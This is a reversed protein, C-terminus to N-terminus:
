PGFRARYEQSNEFGNVMTRFDSPNNRLYTVWGNFGVTDPARRLYGYYQSAVFANVAELNQTIQDSQVIARLVQGRTMTGATLRSILDANTLTVKNPGDPNAPDPTTISSLNYNQGRSGSMLNNVFTTDSVGGYFGLFEGRQVFGAAFAARRALTDVASTGTVAALDKSFEPYDPLRNFSVRYFDILYIGKDKFEPSGFFASSVTIRDCGAAPNNPNTNFQDSCNRLLNSWPEGPEPERGLFDLYHQRVFFAIGADNTQLIPNPGDTSDNDTITVTAAVPSGFNGGAPNFLSVEFTETGEAYSDDIIPISFIKSTEGAAFNLTGLVNVLDCRKFAQHQKVACNVTFTDQDGILYDISAANSTNGIRNVTINVAGAGESVSYSFASLQFTTDAPALSIEWMGRGHTAVRLIRSTPQIAMGFVAVRPLDTGFPAWNTGGDSSSYVGIDTGAFIRSSDTPDVVLANIPISPIGNAAATWNPTAPSSGNAAAGLNTIKWIGKGAPAYFSFAVYAVDKNNPDIAVRGVFRNVSGSPNTPFSPSTLQVMTASGTSTAWVDGVLTGLVRYNDDQPSIAVSTIPSLGLPTVVTHTNGRDTSRYLRDTGLYVTNPTGPGLAMPAYFITNDTCTIGNAPTVFCGIRTWNAGGNLSREYGVQMGNTGGSFNFTHYMTANATDTSSQDILAYGGDGGSTRAWSGSAGQQMETGNDQTGGITLFQDTPHVALGEFQLTSLPATNLNTWISGVIATASRRWIGGDNGTVINGAGDFVLSHDDAHLGTSDNAFSNGGNVSKRVVGGCTSSIQGGIYVLNADVPDVAIPMDYSCQGSCFGGGGSLHGSWTAGGDFSKRIAGSNTTTCGPTNTPTESTAAYVTVSAGARHIAFNVRTGVPLALVQTFAGTSLASTTRYIGSPLSGLGVASALINDPNGPEMAMDAIDQDGSQPSDFSNNTTVVLKQFTILSTPSTANTSRYIGRTAIAPVLGMANGGMGSAGRGTAVFITAPDNPHVLIKTISRGKFIPYTLNGITQTPNIPGILTATTDANDIRYLGAGFFCDGCSNYEGTGVYLTTHDSPAIALAGVAMSEALDFIATWSAGGNTTRWVGGQAAGLYIVNPNTPDVAISTIRGSFPGNPLPAPGISTWSGGMFSEPAMMAELKQFREQRDLQRIARGRASPDFFHGPEVGRRLGNYEDRLRLYTERDLRTGPPMDPDLEDASEEHAGASTLSESLLAAGGSMLFLVLGILWLTLSRRRRM